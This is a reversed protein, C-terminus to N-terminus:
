AAKRRRTILGLGSLAGFLLPLSAPLPAVTVDTPKYWIDVHSYDNEIKNKTPDKNLKTISWNGSTSSLLFASYLTSQKIGIVVESAIGSLSSIAWGLDTKDADIMPDTFGIAKDGKSLEDSKFALTYSVGFFEATVPAPGSYSPQSGCFVNSANNGAVDSLQILFKDNQCSGTVASAPAASLGVFMAVAPALAAAGFM